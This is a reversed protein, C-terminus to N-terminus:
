SRNRGNGRGSSEPKHDHFDPEDFDNIAQEINEQLTPM